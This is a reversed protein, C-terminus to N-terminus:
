LPGPRKGGVRGMKLGPVTGGVAAPNLPFPTGAVSSQLPAEVEYSEAPWWGPRTRM